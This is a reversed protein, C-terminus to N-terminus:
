TLSQVFFSETRVLLDAKSEPKIYMNCQHTFRALLSSALFPNREKKKKKKVLAGMEVRQRVGTGNDTVSSRDRRM